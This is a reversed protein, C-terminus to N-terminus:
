DGGGAAAAGGKHKKHKRKRKRDGAGAAGRKGEGREGSGGKSGGKGDKKGKKVSLPNPGKAKKKLRVKAPQPQGQRHGQGQGGAAGGPAAGKGKGKVAALLAREEEDLRRVKTEEVAASQHRSADSPAEMLLVARAVFLLAVSPVHRLDAKLEQDQTAVMYRGENRAGILARIADGASMAAAADGGDDGAAPPPNDLVECCAEAWQLSAATAPGLARLEDLVARHIQNSRPDHSHTHIVIPQTRARSKSEISPDIRADAEDTRM